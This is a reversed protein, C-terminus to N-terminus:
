RLMTATGSNTTIAICKLSPPNTSVDPHRRIREIVDNDFHGSYGLLAGAIDFTHKLGGFISMPIQDRKQLERKRNEVDKHQDQVWTHHACASTTSIEKKFVIIYSNPIEKSESSSLLPAAGNHITDISILPSTSALLPLLSLALYGKMAPCPVIEVRLETLLNFFTRFIFSPSLSISPESRSANSPHPPQVTSPLHLPCIVSSIVSLGLYPRM